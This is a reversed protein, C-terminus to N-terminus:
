RRCRTPCCTASCSRRATQVGLASPPSRRLRQGAPRADLRAAAPRLDARPHGRHRDDAVYQSQGSCCRSRQDGAAPGPMSLMIDVFRMVVNDVWGGFAGALVGLAMGVILGLVTSSSASRAAVAPRRLDAPLARRPRPPRRRAPLGDSPAPSTARGSRAVAAVARLPDHPASCRRSSRSSCSSWSSSRASSRWRTAACGASRAGPWRSAARARPCRAPEPPSRTSGSASATALSADDRGEGEPRAPRLLHRGAPEGARLHDRPDPHLGAAGPLRPQRDRRALASGVGGFAFVTETLVAGSLLLGTQLGITTVVPLLANRLIHRRRVTATALGKAEATRM